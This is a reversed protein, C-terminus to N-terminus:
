ENELDRNGQIFKLNFRFLNIRWMGEMLRLVFDYSGVFMRTNNGSQVRRYHWAVGHCSAVAEDGKVTVLLNGVQHHIHEIPELGTEWASSIAAPTLQAPEGGALSTMDFTVDPAFCRRVQSWDRADTSVFLTNIVDAIRGRHLLTEIDLPDAM